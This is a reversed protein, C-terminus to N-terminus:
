GSKAALSLPGDTTPPSSPSPAFGIERKERENLLKAAFASLQGEIKALRQEIADFRTALREETAELRAEARKEFTDLRELITALDNSVAPVTATTGRSSALTQDLGAAV